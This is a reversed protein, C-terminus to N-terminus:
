KIKQLYDTWKKIMLKDKVIDNKLEENKSQKYLEEHYALREKYKQIINEINERTYWKKNTSHYITQKDSSGIVSHLNNKNILNKVSNNLADNITILKYYHRCNPRTIMWVPAKIVWQFTQINNKSIFDSITKRWTESKVSNKWYANVYLRGQFDEHDIACDDHKSILFFIKDNRYDVSDISIGLRVPLKLDQNIIEEKMKTEEKRAYEYSISKMEQYVNQRKLEKYLFLGLDVNEGNRTYNNGVQTLSKRISSKLAKVLHLAYKEQKLSFPLGNDNRWKTIKRIGKAIERITKQNILGKYVEVIYKNNLKNM